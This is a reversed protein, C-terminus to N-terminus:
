NRYRFNCVYVDFTVSFIEPWTHVAFHSEALLITGTIGASKYKEVSPFSYFLDRVITLGSSLVLKSCTKKLSKEDTMLGLGSRCHSLDAIIHLGDM